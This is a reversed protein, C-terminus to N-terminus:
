LRLALEMTASVGWYSDAYRRVIRFGLDEYFPVNEEDSELVVKGYGYEVAKLVAFRVLESGYGRSWFGERVGVRSLYLHGERKRICLISVITGNDDVVYSEYGARDRELYFWLDLRKGNRDYDFKRKGTKFDQACDTELIRRIRVPGWLCLCRVTRM